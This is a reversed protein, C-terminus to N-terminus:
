GEASFRYVTTHRWGVGRKLLAQPFATHNPSDPYFQTELCFGSRRGYTRGSKGNPGGGLDNGSYFQVGPLSTEVEMVIGSAPHAVVACPRLVGSEGDVVWNHDYGGALRLQEFPEEIRLGMPAPTRFDMPTGAVPAIEGIPISGADIPTYASAHLQLMHESIGGHGEGALNFYAHNTLNCLTDRDSVAQYAVLLANGELTYCVSVAMGGPYGEEGDPSELTLCVGNEVEKPSWLRKDFGRKGGHLHNAGNNCELQYATGNLSFRGRGIRNAHRGILAGMYQDQGEYDAACRYGLVVDTSVAWRDPVRLFVLAGGYTTIGCSLMGNDLHILQASQGARTTGFEIINLSRKRGTM